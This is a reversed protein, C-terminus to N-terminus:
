DGTKKEKICLWNESMSLLMFVEKRSEISLINSSLFPSSKFASMGWSPRPTPGAPCSMHQPGTFARLAATKQWAARRTVGRGFGASYSGVAGFNM